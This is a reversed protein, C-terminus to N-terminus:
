NVLNNWSMPESSATDWSKLNDRHGFSTIGQKKMMLGYSWGVNVVSTELM